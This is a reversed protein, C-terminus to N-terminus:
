ALLVQLFEDLASFNFDTSFLLPNKGKLADSEHQTRVEVAGANTPRGVQM